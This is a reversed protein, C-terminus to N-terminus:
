FTKQILDAVSNNLKKAATTINSVSPSPTKLLTETSTFFDSLVREFSLYSLFVAELHEAIPDVTREAEILTVSLESMLESLKKVPESLNNALSRYEKKYLETRKDSDTFLFFDKRDFAALYKLVLGSIDSLPERLLALAASHKENSKIEGM